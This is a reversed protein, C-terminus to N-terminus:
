AFGISAAAVLCSLSAVLTLRLRMPLWHQQGWAPYRSRDVGYCTWLLLVLIALGTAAGALLAAWAVLSPVVGWLYDRAVAEGAPSRMALGWHIAGLFSAITAGYALLAQAPFDRQARAALVTWAALAVFPLLGAYGLRTAWPAVTAHPLETM